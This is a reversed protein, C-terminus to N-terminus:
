VYVETVGATDGEEPRQGHKKGPRPFERSDQDPQELCPRLNELTGEAWAAQPGPEKGHAGWGLFGAPGLAWGSAWKTQARRAPGPGM